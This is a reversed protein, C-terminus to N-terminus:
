LALWITLIVDLETRNVEVGSMVTKPLAIESSNTNFLYTNM